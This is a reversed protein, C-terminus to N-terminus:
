RTPPPSPHINTHAPNQAPPSTTIYATCNSCPLYTPVKLHHHAAAAILVGLSSASIRPTPINIMPSSQLILYICPHSISDM